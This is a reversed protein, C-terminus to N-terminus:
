TGAPRYVSAGTSYLAHQPCGAPQGRRNTLFLVPATMTRALAMCPTNRISARVMIKSDPVARVHMCGLDLQSFYEHRKVMPHGRTATTRARGAAAGAPVM